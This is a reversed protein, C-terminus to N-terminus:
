ALGAHHVLVLSLYFIFTGIIVTIAAKRERSDRIIPMLSSTSIFLFTGTALAMIVKLLYADIKGFFLTIGAGAMTSCALWLASLFAQKRSDTAALSITAMTFGEPLKHMTIAIFMLIGAARNISFSGAIIVGDMFTHILLAVLAATNSSKSITVHEHLEVHTHVHGFHTHFHDLDTQLSLSARKQMTEMLLVALYGIVIYLPASSPLSSMSDPLRDLLTAGLLFGAGLATVHIFQRESLKKMITFSGGIMDAISAIFCLSLALWSVQVFIGGYRQLFDNEVVTNVTCLTLRRTLM